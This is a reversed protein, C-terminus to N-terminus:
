LRFQTRRKTKKRMTKRKMRRKRSKGGVFVQPSATRNGSYPSATAALGTTETNHSYGGKIKKKRKGGNLQPRYTNETSKGSIKNWFGSISNMFGSSPKDNGQYNDNGLNFLGGYMKGKTM